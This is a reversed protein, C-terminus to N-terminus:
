GSASSSVARRLFTDRGFRGSGSRAHQLDCGSGRSLFHIGTLSLSYDNSLDRHRGDGAGQARGRAADRVRGRQDESLAAVAVGFQVGLDVAGGACQGTQPQGLAIPEREHGGVGVRKDDREVRRGPQAGDEHRDIRRGRRWLQAVQQLIGARGDEDVVRRHGCRHVRRPGGPQRRGGFAHQAQGLEGLQGGAFGVGAGLTRLREGLGVVREDQVCRAGGALWLAREEVM